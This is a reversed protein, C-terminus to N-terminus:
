RKFPFGISQLKEIKVKSLKGKKFLSRQQSIWNRIYTDPHPVATGEQEFHDKVLQFKTEWGYSLIPTGEHIPFGMTKFRELFEPKLKGRRYYSAMNRLWKKLELHNDLGRPLIFHGHKQKYQELEKFMDQYHRAREQKKRITQKNKNLYREIRKPDPRGFDPPNIRNELDDFLSSMYSEAESWKTTLSLHMYKRQWTEDGHCANFWSSVSIDEISQVIMKAVPRTHVFTAARAMYEPTNEVLRSTMRQRWVSGKRRHKANYARSSRNAIMKGFEVLNYCKLRHSEVIRRCPASFSDPSLYLLKRTIANDKYYALMSRKIASDSIHKPKPVRVLMAYGRQTIAYALIEIRCFLGAEIIGTELQERDESDFDELDLAIENCVYYCAECGELIMRPKRM